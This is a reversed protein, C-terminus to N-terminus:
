RGMKTVPAELGALAKSKMALDATVYRHTTALKPRSLSGVQSLRIKQDCFLFM